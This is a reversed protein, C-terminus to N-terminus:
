RPRLLRRMVAGGAIALLGAVGAGGGVPLPLGGTFPLQSPTQAPARGAGGTPLQASAPAPVEAPLQIPAQAPVEVPARDPVQVPAGEPGPATEAAPPTEDATQPASAAAPSPGGQGGAAAPPAPVPLVPPVTSAPPIGVPVPGPQGGGGAPGAGPTVPTSGGAGGTPPQSGGSGPAEGGSSPAPPSSTSPSPSPFFGGGGGGGRSEPGGSTGGIVQGPTTPCPYEFLVFGETSGGPPLTVSSSSLVVLNAAIQAALAANLNYPPAQLAAALASQSIAYVLNPVQAPAFAVGPNSVTFNLRSPRDQPRFYGSSAPVGGFGLPRRAMAMTGYTRSRRKRRLSQAPRLVPPASASGRRRLVLQYLSVFALAQVGWTSALAEVQWGSEWGMGPPRQVSSREPCHSTSRNM